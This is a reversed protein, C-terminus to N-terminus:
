LTPQIPSNGVGLQLCPLIPILLTSSRIDHTRHNDVRVANRIVADANKFWLLDLLGSM